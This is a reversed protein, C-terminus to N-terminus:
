AAPSGNAVPGATGMAERLAVPSGPKSSTSSRLVDVRGTTWWADKGRLAPPGRDFIEILRDVERHRPFQVPDDRGRDVLLGHDLSPELVPPVGLEEGLPGTGFVVPHHKHDTSHPDDM